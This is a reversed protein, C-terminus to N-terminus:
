RSLSFRVQNEINTAINIRRHAETIVLGTPVEVSPHALVACAMAALAVLAAVLTRRLSM